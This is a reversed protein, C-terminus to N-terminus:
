KDQIEYLNVISLVSAFLIVINVEMVAVVNSQISLKYEVVAAVNNQHEL